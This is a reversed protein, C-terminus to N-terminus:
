LFMLGIIISYNEDEVPPAAVARITDGGSCVCVWNEVHGCDKCYFLYYIENHKSFGDCWM